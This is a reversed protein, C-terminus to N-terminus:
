ELTELRMAAIKQLPKSDHLKALLKIEAETKAKLMLKSLRKVSLKQKKLFELTEESDIPAIWPFAPNEYLKLYREDSVENRTDLHGFNPITYRGPRVKFIM